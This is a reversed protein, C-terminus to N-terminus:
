HGIDVEIEGGFSELWNLLAVCAQKAAGYLLTLIRMKEKLGLIPKKLSSEICIKKVLKLGLERSQAKAQSMKDRTSSRLGQQSFCEIIKKEREGDM